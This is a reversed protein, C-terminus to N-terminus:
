SFYDLIIKEADKSLEGSEVTTILQGPFHKDYWKKKTEWHNRYKEDDMIGLHEWYWEEGNWTIAFDPLYFTGDPAYLPIEYKFPIKRDSLMNAIIVESKSRVMYDSLTKHIKGEEYWESMTLIEDPVPRFDFLSSNIGLLHSKEPRRLNLFTSVDEEVLLVLSRKARTIATYLMETSLLVKKKKPLIFYVREFESGQAKHVSIAYALEINQEVQNSSTFEIWFDEKRSFVAQFRGLRFKKWYFRDKDYAHHKIFGIEGNYVEIKETRGKKINYAWYPNSKPRNVFQIIKDDFTIGNLSGKNEINYQNFYEQLQSNLNETGFLEGRYPSLVQQYNANGSEQDSKQAKIWLNHPNSGRMKEGTDKELDSTITDLLLKELENIDQWYYVRLDKDIQGSEQVCRLFNEVRAKNKFVDDSSYEAKMYLSAMDLIGTGKGATKNEMQRINKELIALSDLEQEQLWNIIDAFVRGRGIPPLQNPDGIFILRQVTAWNIARFLTAVISLDLMSSEDIIYIQYGDEEHGGSRRLSLNENLWRNKYLFSHITSASRGTLERIRDAAKGTPALLQFSTGVGHVKEIAEILAKIITTKGTGAAGSVVCVPKTFVKQCAKIQDQIISDYEGPNLRALPSEQDYLFNHWHKETMPVRIAIDPRKILSRLQKEIERENEYSSRLYVYTRDKERRFVLAESLEEEDVVFYRETYQHRKWEPFFSLKHNIDHIIKNAAVFVHINEKRLQEVCLARLRRWDDVEIGEYNEIELEPSTFVAHDIRNFSIRDDLDDGTYQECIVYPNDHIEDLSAYIGYSEREESLIREIQDTTLDIRPLITRLLRQEEDDKLRWQRKIRKQRDTPLILGPISKTEGTLFSFIANKAKLENKKTTEDKFYKIAENFKIYDLVKALGPYNGRNDWLEAILSQLWERRLIWNESKDNLDILSNVIELFHEVLDLADDDSLQRTAYKFNRDNEPIFLIKEIAAPNDLYLHYPIRLGQDPYHSTVAKQWVFGGAYKKKNEASVGDFFLFEGLSKLRSIGAIVYNKADDESFPNSYNTYYFILTKDPKLESFYQRAGELRKEHNWTRDPNRNEDSFMEEYPWVCTTSPLIKWYKTKSNDYFWEPPDAYAELEEKGFANISYICPPINELQACSRGAVDTRMEWKLERKSAIM